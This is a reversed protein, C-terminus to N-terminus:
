AFRRILFYAVAAVVMLGMIIEHACMGGKAKCSGMPCMLSMFGEEAAKNKGADM